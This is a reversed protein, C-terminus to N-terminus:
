PTVTCGFWGLCLGLALISCVHLYVRAASMRASASSARHPFKRYYPVGLMSGWFHYSGRIILVEFPVAKIHYVGMNRTALICSDSALGM